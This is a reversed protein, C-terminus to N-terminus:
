MSSSATQAQCVADWDGYGCAEPLRDWIQQNVEIDFDTLRGHCSGCRNIYDRLNKLIDVSSSEGFPLIRFIDTDLTRYPREIAQREVDTIGECNVCGLWPNSYLKNVDLTETIIRALKERFVLCTREAVHSLVMPTGNSLTKRPGDLLEEIGQLATYYCALPVISPIHYTIGLKVAIAADFDSPVTALYAQKDHVEIETPFMLRILEVVEERLEDFAYKTSLKILSVLTEFAIVSGRRAYLSVMDHADDPLRVVVCGEFTENCDPTADGIALMDKFVASNLALVSKHVRFGTTGCVIIINGDDLWAESAQPVDEDNRPRKVPRQPEM